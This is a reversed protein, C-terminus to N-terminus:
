PPWLERRRGGGGHARAAEVEVGCVGARFVQRAGAFAFPLPVDMPGGGLQSPQDRERRAWAGPTAAARAAFATTLAAATCDASWRAGAAHALGRLCFRWIVRRLMDRVRGIWHGRPTPATARPGM